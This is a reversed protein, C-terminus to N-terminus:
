WRIRFATWVAAAVISSRAATFPYAHWPSAPSPARATTQGHYECQAETDHDVVALGTTRFCLANRLRGRQKFLHSRNKLVWAAHIAVGARTERPLTVISMAVSHIDSASRVIMPRPSKMAVGTVLADILGSRPHWTRGVPM